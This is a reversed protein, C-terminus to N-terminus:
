FYANDNEFTLEKCIVFMATSLMIIQFYFQHLPLCMPHFSTRDAVLFINRPPSFPFQPILGFTCLLIHDLVLFCVKNFKSLEGLKGALFYETLATM